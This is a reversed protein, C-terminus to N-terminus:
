PWPDGWATNRAARYAAGHRKSVNEEIMGDACLTLTVLGKRTRPHRLVRGAAPEAPASTAVVYSFKEDEFGLEAAKLRRHLGTRPLRASFHCWDGAAVPCPGAHPCPAAIRLGLGILRDRAALVRAYGEPTGPEVVVVTTAREASWRVVAEQAASPMEGLVYSLTVLDAPPTDLDARIDSRRWTACRVAPHSAEAALGRGCAIVAPDREIVTVQRLSPWVATAAWIAAGTGGGLDLQTVPRLDPVSAAAQTLAATVAAYTAPMRTAAYAAVDTASRLVPERVPRRYRATLLGASRALDQERHRAVMADLAHRLEAPLAIM